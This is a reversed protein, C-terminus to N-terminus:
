AKKQGQARRAICSVFDLPAAALVELEARKLPSLASAFGPDALRERLVAIATQHEPAVYRAAAVQLGPDGFFRHIVEGMLKRVKFYNLLRADREAPTAETVSRAAADSSALYRPLSIDDRYRPQETVARLGRDGVAYPRDTQFCRARQVEALQIDPSPKNSFTGDARTTIGSGNQGVEPMSDALKGFIDDKGRHAALLENTSTLDCGTPKAALGITWGIGQTQCRMGERGM